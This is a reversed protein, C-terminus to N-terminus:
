PPWPPPWLQRLAGTPPPPLDVVDMERSRESYLSVKVNWAVTTLAAAVVPAASWDAATAVWFLAALAAVLLLATAAAVWVLLPRMDEKGQDFFAFLRSVTM